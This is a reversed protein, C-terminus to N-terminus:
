LLCQGSTFISSTRTTGQGALPASMGGTYQAMVKVDYTTGPQLNHLTYSTVDGVFIDVPQNTGAFSLLWTLTPFWIFCLSGGAAPPPTEGAPTYILRYGQVPAPVADWAVRFRTYWEDSVRLNRPSLM